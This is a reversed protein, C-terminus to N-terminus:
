EAVHDPRIADMEAKLEALQQSFDVHERLRLGFDLISRAAGLRVPAPMNAAQLTLLTKVAELGAVTLM